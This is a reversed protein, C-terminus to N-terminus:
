LSRMWASRREFSGRLRQPSQALHMHTHVTAHSPSTCGHSFLRGHLPISGGDLKSIDELKKMLPESITPFSPLTEVAMLIQTMTANPSPIENEIHEYIQDCENLCCINFYPASTICNSMGTIYNPIIVQPGLYSSSEDLAGLQRLYSSPELFQWAGQESSAYFDSLKVRGTAHVDKELLLDKMDHCEYSSWPGFEESIRGAMRVADEFVFDQERFPNATSHRGFGDSGSIDTLFIMANAWNPYRMQVNAKDLMHQERDTTGELIEIMLYSSIVEHLQHKTLVAGTEHSNLYYSLEVGRVVEDFALAEVAAIMSVMDNLAFGQHQFRKELSSRVFGPVKSQIIDAETDSSNIADVHEEFGKVMWAHTYSFYRRM